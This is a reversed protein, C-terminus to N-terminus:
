VLLQFMIATITFM